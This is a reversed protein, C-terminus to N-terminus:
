RPCVLPPLEAASAGDAIARAAAFVGRVADIRAAVSLGATREDADMASMSVVGVVESTGRVLVPGGSDGPCVSARLRFVGRDVSDIPGGLRPRRHVGGTSMACRGFGVPDVVTVARTTEHPAANALAPDSPTPERNPPADLRPTMMAVGVLKRELVLVAVDGTGGAHGCPPAVVAKVAVRGWALDDGGLEIALDSASLMNPSLEGSESRHVVCHHATLVLDEDVLTGSCSAKPTVVRVIADEPTALAFPVHLSRGSEGLIAEEHAAIRVPPRSSSRICGTGAGALALGAFAVLPLPRTSATM